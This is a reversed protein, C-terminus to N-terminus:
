LINREFNAHSRDHWNQKLKILSQLLRKGRNKKDKVIFM